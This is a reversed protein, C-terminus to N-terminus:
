IWEQTERNQKTVIALSVQASFRLQFSMQIIASVNKKKIIVWTVFLAFKFQM